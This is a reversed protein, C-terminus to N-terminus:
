GSQRCALPQFGSCGLAGDWTTAFRIEDVTITRDSGYAAISVGNFSMDAVGSATLTPTAPETDSTPNRYVRVDDNGAKYDIRMVYFNVNTDGLGLSHNNVTNPARLNVDLTATDNGVGAIRGSDGLYTSGSQSGNNDRKFEFEYFKAPASAGGCQEMFSVYLTTGDAGIHNVGDLYGHAGFPGTPSCDLWRGSRSANEQYAANGLSRADYDAPANTGALM